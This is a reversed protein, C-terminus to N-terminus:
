TRELVKHGACERGNQGEQVLRKGIEYYTNFHKGDDYLTLSNKFLSIVAPRYDLSLNENRLELEIKFRMIRKRRYNYFEVVANTALYKLCLKSEIMRMFIDYNFMRQVIFM